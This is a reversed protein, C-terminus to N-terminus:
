GLLVAFEGYLPDDPRQASRTTAPAQWLTRDASPLYREFDILGVRHAIRWVGDRRELRDLFRGGAFFDEDAGTDDNLRRHYALYHCESYATDGELAVTLTNVMHKCMKLPRVIQMALDVFDASRGSFSGHQHTADSHFCGRLAEEDARDCGRCYRNLVDAVAQRDLLTQIVPDPHSAM